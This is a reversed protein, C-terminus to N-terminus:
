EDVDVISIPSMTFDSDAEDWLVIGKAGLIVEDAVGIEIAEPSTYTKM